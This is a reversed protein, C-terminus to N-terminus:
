SCNGVFGSLIDVSVPCCVSLHISLPPTHKDLVPFPLPSCGGCGFFRSKRESHLTKNYICIFIYIVCSVFAHTFRYMEM